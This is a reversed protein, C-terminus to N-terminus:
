VLNKFSSSPSIFLNREFDFFSSLVAQLALFRAEPEIRNNFGATQLSRLEPYQLLYLLISLHPIKFINITHYM